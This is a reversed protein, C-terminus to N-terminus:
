QALLSRDNFSITYTSQKTILAMSMWITEAAYEGLLIGLAVMRLKDYGSLGYYRQVFNKVLLAILLGFWYYDVGFNMSLVYGAPHLPFGPFKFRVADLIMVITFGLMTMVIGLIDPGQRKSVINNLYGGADTWGIDGTRYNRVLLFWYALFFGFVTAVVIAQFIRKQNVREMQAMKMAELQYPMPHNRYLRNMVMFGSAVWSAQQDSLWRTGFFRGMISNSGFFAFEHTPPGLQARIRTLVFSFILFLAVYPVMYWAPLGGYMGWGVQILFTVILGIFAWRYKIGGDAATKGSRIDSWVERLYDRSVWIAGLFMAIVAGWTQEDFYPPGPAIATGSFTSQPIGQAALVVHTMKRLLFFVVFSLLMDSPMFLGIAAMFPYISVRFDGINSWPPETFARDIYFLDKVPLAPLNPYLYNLGNLIDISFMVGFAIWMAKSKWMGGSGGGESLNVPLQILPFTLRERECWAGRMLQNIFLMCLCLSIIAFGWGVFSTWFLPLKGAVYHWDKGGGQIDKVSAVDKIALWDPIYKKFYDRYMADDPRLPITYTMPFSVTTWEGAIAGAVSLIAYIVIFDQQKLAAKPMYLRLPINILLLFLIASIPAVMLSFIASAWQNTISYTVPITLFFGLLVAVPRIGSSKRASAVSEEPGEIATAMSEKVIASKPASPKESHYKTEGSRAPDM